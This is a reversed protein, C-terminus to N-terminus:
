QMIHNPDMWVVEWHHGDPDYFSWAYMFGHDMPALAHAGGAAIATRVMEDVEARNSASLAVIAETFAGTECIQKTTFDRFREDVLLMVFAEESVVMCAAKDDTFQPTFAFGLKAFFDMSRKLDRVPLNVFMKRGPNATV